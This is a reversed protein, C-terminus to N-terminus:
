DFVSNTLKCRDLPILRLPFTPDEYLYRLNEFSIVSRVNLAFSCNNGPSPLYLIHQENHEGVKLPM